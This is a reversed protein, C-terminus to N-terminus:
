KIFNRWNALISEDTCWSPSACGPEDTNKWCDGVDAPIARISGLKGKMDETFAFAASDNSSRSLVDEANNISQKDKNQQLATKADELEKILAKIQGITSYINKITSYDTAGSNRTELEDRSHFKNLNLTISKTSTPSTATIRVDPLDYSFKFVAEGNVTEKTLYFNGLTTHSGKSAYPKINGDPLSTLDKAGVEFKHYSGSATTREKGAIQGNKGKYKLSINGSSDAYGLMKVKQPSDEYTEVVSTDYERAITASCGTTTGMTSICLEDKTKNSAVNIVKELCQLETNRLGKKANIIASLAEKLSDIMTNENNIASDLSNLTLNVLSGRGGEYEENTMNTLYQKLGYLGGESTLTETGVNRMLQGVVEDIEDANQMQQLGSGILQSAYNALIFGPTVVRNVTVTSGDALTITQEKTASKFGNGWNLRMKEQEVAMKVQKDLYKQAEIYALFPNNAPDGMVEKMGSFGGCGYFDGKACADQKTQEVRCTFVDNPKNSRLQYRKKLLGKIDDKFPSCLNDTEAGSYIEKARKDAVREKLHLSLNEVYAPAGDFGENIATIGQQIMKALLAKILRQNVGDLVCEKFVLINTNLSTAYDWVPVHAGNPVRSGVSQFGAANCGMVGQRQYEAYTKSAFILLVAVAFFLIFKYKNKLEM